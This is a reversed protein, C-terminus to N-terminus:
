RSHFLARWRIGGVCRFRCPILRIELFNPLTPPTPPAGPAEFLRRGQLCLRQSEQLAMAVDNQCLSGAPNGLESRLNKIVIVGTKPRLVGKSVEVSDPPRTLGRDPGVAAPLERDRARENFPQLVGAVRGQVVL